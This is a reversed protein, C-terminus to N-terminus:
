TPARACVQRARMEAARVQWLRGGAKDIM